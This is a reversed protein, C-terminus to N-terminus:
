PPLEDCSWDDGHMIRLSLEDLLYIGGILPDPCYQRLPSLHISLYMGADEQGPSEGFCFPVIVNPVPLEQCDFHYLLPAM